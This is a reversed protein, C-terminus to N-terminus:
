KNPANIAEEKSTEVQVLAALYKPQIKLTTILKINVPAIKSIPLPFYFSYVLKGRM